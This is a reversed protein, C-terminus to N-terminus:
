RRRALGLLEEAEGGAPRAPRGRAPRTLAEPLDVEAPPAVPPRTVRPAAASLTTLTALWVACAGTVHAGVLLVPLDTAYQVFGILGQSLEVVLLATAARTPGGTARLAFWLGLSLGILLFVSDAHLQTVAGLDLGNRRANEDGAHPGSGTVVTGLTLVAVSAATVLLGLARVPAPPTWAYAPGGGAQRWLTYAAAILAISGLFHGAVIWPNLDTRVTSAGVLGQAVVMALVVVSWRLTRGRRPRQAVASAVALLAVLGVVISLMRNGFEIVGHVGMEATTVYSEDTCKPVTPCGLGSGTLRVTAGTLVIGVNVIVSALAARRLAAPSGLIDRLRRM